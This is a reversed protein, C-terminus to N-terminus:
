DVSQVFTYNSNIKAISNRAQRESKRTIAQIDATYIRLRNM